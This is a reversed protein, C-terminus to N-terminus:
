TTSEEPDSAAPNLPPPPPTRDYRRASLLSMGLMVALLGAMLLGLWFTTELLPMTSFKLLSLPAACFVISFALMWHQTETVVFVTSVPSSALQMMLWPTLARAFAGAEDWRAGFVTTFLWPSLVYILGFPVISLLLGRVITARVLPLMAGREVRALKQFFVQSIAGNILGVPVQLIRWALNFQGVAGLEVAGILLTIGNLRLSDILTTPLNLLPMRKYRRLLAGRTPTESGIKRHLEGARRRLNVFAYLQGMLTGLVLGALSRIGFAGFVLQGGASGVMQRVRNGAITRYDTKRNFWYQLITVQAVLFITIGGCLLWSALEQDDHYHAAIQDRFVFAFITFLVAVAVNTATAMWAIRRASDDDEALVITMDLRLSAITTAIATISGYIAFKGFTEPTFMRSTFVSVLMVIVQAGVSGSALVLVGGLTPYRKAAREFRTRVRQLVTFKKEM